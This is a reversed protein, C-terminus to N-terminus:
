CLRQGGDQGMRWYEELCWAEVQEVAQLVALPEARRWVPQVATLLVVLGVTLWLLPGVTLWPLPGVTLWLLLEAKLVVTLAVVVLPQALVEVTLAAQLM